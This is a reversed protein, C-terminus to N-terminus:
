FNKEEIPRCGSLGGAYLGLTDRTKLFRNLRRGKSSKLSVFHLYKSFVDIVSLLYKIGDNYKSSGQVDFLHFECVEMMNYVTYPDRPFIKRDPRHLTFADQAELWALLECATKGIKSGRAAAHLM